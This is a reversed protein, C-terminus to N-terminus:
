PLLQISISDPDSLSGSCFYTKGSQFDKGRVRVEREGFNPHSFVFRYEGIDLNKVELPTYLSGGPVLVGEEVVLGAEVVWRGNVQLSVLQAFPWILFRLSITGQFQAISGFQEKASLFTDRVPDFSSGLGHLVSLLFRCWDGIRKAEGRRALWEEKPWVRGPLAQGEKAFWAQVESFQSEPVNSLVSRMERLLEPSSEEFEFFSTKQCIVAFNGGWVEERTEKLSNNKTPSSSIKGPFLKWGFGGVISFFLAAAVVMPWPNQFVWRRARDIVGRIPAEVSEGTLYRELDKAMAEASPYRLSRKKELAKMIIAELEFPLKRNVKRPLVPERSGVRHLIVAANEGEFPPKGTVLSYLTAGLSYVDSLQDVEETRGRAQEPSMFSPTGQVGKNPLPDVGELLVRALGFDTIAPEGNSEYLINAPKLDRHIISRSHAFEIARCVKVFAEAIFRLELDVIGMPFGDIYDMVLFPKGNSEGVEHVGAINPHRLQAALQAECEFRRATEPTPSSLFKIAVFRRLNKQWARYVVGSGGEGLVNVLVFDGLDNRSDQLAERVEPPLHSLEEVPKPRMRSLFRDEDVMELGCNPCLRDPLLDALFRCGKELCVLHVSDVM